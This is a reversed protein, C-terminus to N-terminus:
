IGLESRIAQAIAEAHHKMSSEDEAEIMVRALAETGSYRIVVRGTDALANEAERIKEAISSIGELPKKERVKVNVIVQPFTKLDETLKALSSGSRHVIDLLLLATLLGDGTTSKGTFLIHGSQEGGLSAGTKKMQELVYKDGVPARLMRIGSRKLAAELGMNSMTTAVVTNDHLLGRAQLDRAALLMVADGNIVRGNEDAFMARDADGDFTIGIDAKDELVYKAVVEPKTAGCDVNINRGDPSANRIRVEGGLGDFLQPAVASAAGNACDVVIRKGDLSLGPVAALLSRVYEARDAEEVAPAATHITSHNSNSELQRFIEEEIALETADPLKYGDPGFVKIGNDQWPNHSASVVVGAAFGHSRTLFAVAPTTIVGASEVVAGGDRLGETIAAAIWESSERTDIGLIVKPQTEPAAIHHALAVGVAHITRPDLPSQGAVARIGDTGFLKRM